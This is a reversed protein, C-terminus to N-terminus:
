KLLNSVATTVVVMVVCALVTLSYVWFQKERERRMTMVTNIKSIAGYLPMGLTKKAEEVDLFSQDFFEAAVVFVAGLVIGIVLGVIAVAVRNPKFPELPVRAPDLVSYKTGEKSAQLRQTIKATELRQLLMNYIQENVEADRAMVDGIKDILMVKYLDQQEVGPPQEGTQNYELDDLAKQIQTILPNTGGQTLDINETFQLNEQELEARRADITEKLTRVIPHKETSDLMMDDLRDQLRAIEASKIKGKYVKLQEEIFRIADSTEENQIAVNRTIFIESITQVVSQTMKADDGVYSLDIINHSRLRIRISSRLGLILSEFARKNRIERDLGLRKVLEVLSNWGLISEKLGMMRQNVTSSVALKDFLPNDSKGEQVLIITASRYKKPLVIGSCIGVTLGLLTPIILLQKRRFFIKLYSLPSKYTNEM